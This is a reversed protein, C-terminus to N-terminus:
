LKRFSVGDKRGRDGNLFVVKKGLFYNIIIVLGTMFLKATNQGACMWEVLLIVGVFDIIGTLGRTLVFAGIERLLVKWNACVSQFVFRKNVIYAYAKGAIIAALNAFQYGILCKLGMYVLLNVATTTAGWFCYALMERQCIRRFVEKM